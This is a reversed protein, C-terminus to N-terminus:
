IDGLCDLEWFVVIKNLLVKLYWISFLYLFVFFLKSIRFILMYLFYLMNNILIYLGFLLLGFKKWDIDFMM